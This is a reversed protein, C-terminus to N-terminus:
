PKPAPADPVTNPERPAEFKRDFDVLHSATANKTMLKNMAQFAVWLLAALVVVAVGSFPMIASTGAAGAAGEPLSATGAAGLAAGAEVVGAAGTGAAGAVM